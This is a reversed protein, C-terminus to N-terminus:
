AFRAPAEDAKPAPIAQRKWLRNVRKPFGTSTRPFGHVHGGKKYLRARDFPGANLTLKRAILEDVRLGAEDIVPDIV